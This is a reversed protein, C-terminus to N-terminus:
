KLGKAYAFSESLGITDWFAEFYPTKESDALGVASLLSSFNEYRVDEGINRAAFDEVIHPVIKQLTKYTYYNMKM